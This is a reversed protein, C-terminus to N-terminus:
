WSQFCSYYDINSGKIDYKYKVFFSSIINYRFRSFHFTSQISMSRM